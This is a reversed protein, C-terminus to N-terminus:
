SDILKELKKILKLFDEHPNFDDKDKENPIYDKYWFLMDTIALLKDRKTM